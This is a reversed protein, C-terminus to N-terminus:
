SAGAPASSQPSMDSDANAGSGWTYLYSGPTFGMGAITQNTWTATGTLPSGSVYGLPVLLELGNLTGFKDARQAVTTATAVVNRQLDLLRVELRAVLREQVELDDADVMLGAM